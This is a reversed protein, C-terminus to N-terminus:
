ENSLGVIDFSDFSFGNNGKAKGLYTIRLPIKINRLDEIGFKETLKKVARVVNSGAYAFGTMKGAVMTQFIILDSIKGEKEFGNEVLETVVINISEKEKMLKVPSFYDFEVQVEKATELSKFYNADVLSVNSTQAIAIEQNEM